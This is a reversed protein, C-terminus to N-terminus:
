ETLGLGEPGVKHYPPKADAAREADFRWIGGTKDGDLNAALDLQRALAHIEVNDSSEDHRNFFRREWERGEAKEAKRLERQAVEIRTKFASVADMDGKQINSAVDYWARRSEYHDQEELPTVTLPTTKNESVSWLDVVEKNPTKITFKGNWQGDVIYLPKKEGESTKFLSASFTNKKGSLWGKGSFDIKATYGSSSAIKTSKELEVFPTGYILSEIHMNPLTILYYEKADSGPPTLTYLAHGIQKVQITSSFSAKQANYGQLEVGHKKNQIAYATAPPHHSVQESILETEGVDSNADAQWKGIFLEGLFPNLPKKESGLKESRSCYQQHLTTLFWKLVLLARKEPDAEKAPAVFVAPHEAWYASYETLSTSSLIFPPATLSSLDGNFSAISKLFSTWSGKSAPPVASQPEKKSSM